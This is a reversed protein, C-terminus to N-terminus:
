TQWSVVVCCNNTIGILINLCNTVRKCKKAWENNNNHINAQAQTSFASTSPRCNGNAVQEGGGGKM